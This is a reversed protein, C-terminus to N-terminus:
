GERGTGKGIDTRTGRDIKTGTQALGKGQAQTETGTRTNSERDRQEQEVGVTM